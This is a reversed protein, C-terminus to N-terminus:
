FEAVCKGLAIREPRLLMFGYYFKLSSFGMEGFPDDASYSIDSEPKANKIKFKTTKGDTQFGITTFSADGVVLMPFVDYNGGTERYGTNTTVAKGEGAWFMMEPVVVIRFGGITGIEGNITNPSGTVDGAHAYHEVGIFAQNSFLDAMRKVMPILESGIYMIRAGAIVRTDIMRSGTIVKTQKPCRNNDLDIEMRMLDEYSITSVESAEGSIEATTTADGGYRVVGASNLLDVQLLDETVENGANLLERTCHMDLEADTDFDMSEKTYDYFMGYKELTGELDIRTMGVRNVRGGNETLAPMKATITGVDKSSGYLNYGRSLADAENDTIVWPPTLAELAAVTTAYNTDFVGLRIFIDNAAAESVTLAAAASTVSEGYAYEYVFGNGTSAVDPRAIIITVAFFTTLGGADIGQDNLNADDLIPLYHYRKIKKGMNKPMSTVDALPSFYQEKKLEILAKKQYYDTRFQTGITSDVASGSGDTDNPNNYVGMM